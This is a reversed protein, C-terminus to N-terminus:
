ARRARSRCAWPSCRWSVAGRNISIEDSRSAEGARTQAARGYSLNARAWMAPLGAEGFSVPTLAALAFKTLVPVSSFAGPLPALKM